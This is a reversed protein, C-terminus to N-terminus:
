IRKWQKKGNYKSQRKRQFNEGINESPDIGHQLANEVIPQLLLKPIMYEEIGNDILIQYKFKEAYRYEQINLYDCLYEKEEKISIFKRSDLNLHLMRSLADSVREINDAGQMISLIKITHLTNHLFHPNIQLSLMEIDTKRKEKEKRRVDTIMARIRELMVCIQQYLTGIEDNSKIEINLELNEEGIELVAASLDRLNRTVLRIVFLTSILLLAICIGVMEIAQTRVEVFGSIVEEREVCGVITWPTVSSTLCVVLYTTGRIETYFSENEFSLCSNLESIFEEDKIGSTYIPKDAISDVLCLYYGTMNEIDFITEILSCKIDAKVMGIIENQFFVPRVISFVQRATDTSDTDTYDHPTLYVVDQKGNKIEEFWPESVLKSYETIIGYSCTRGEFNYVALGNLYSKFSCRNLLYDKAKQLSSNMEQAKSNDITLYNILNANQSTPVKNSVLAVIYDIDRVNKEFNENLVSILGTFSQEATQMAENTFSQYWSATSVGCFLIFIILMISIIKASFSKNFWKMFM